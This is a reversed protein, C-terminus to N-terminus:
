KLCPLKSIISQLVVAIRISMGDIDIDETALIGMGNPIHLARILEDFRIGLENKLRQIYNHRYIM